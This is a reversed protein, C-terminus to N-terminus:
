VSTIVMNYKNFVNKDHPFLVLIILNDLPRQLSYWKYFTNIEGEM